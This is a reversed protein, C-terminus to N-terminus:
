RFEPELTWRVVKAPSLSGPSEPLPHPSVTGALYLSSCSTGLELTPKERPPPTYDGSARSLLDIIDTSERLKEDVAVMTHANHQVGSVRLRAREKTLQRIRIEILDTAGRETRDRSFIRIGPHRLIAAVIAARGRRVAFTLPTDGHESFRRNGDAGHALLVDVTQAQEPSEPGQLLAVTLPTNGSRDPPDVPARGKTLLKKVSDPNCYQAAVHLCSRGTEENVFTPSAGQDLLFSVHWPHDHRLTKLLQCGLLYRQAADSAEQMALTGAIGFAMFLMTAQKIRQM